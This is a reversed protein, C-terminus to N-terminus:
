KYEKLIKIYSEKKLEEILETVEKQRKKEYLINEIDKKVEKYEIFKSETKEVLQIIYWGSTTDIWDSHASLSLKLAATELAPDLEGKSYTGLYYKQENGELESYEEAIKLFDVSESLKKSIEDRKESLSEKTFYYEKNLFICNLKFKAPITYKNINEKYYAIIASTDVLIRSGLSEQIFKEQMLQELRQEKFEEYTIGQSQLANILDDRSKMNNRTMIEKIVMELYQNMDYNKERAKSILVKRGIVLDLLNSKMKDLERTLEEGSFRSQLELTMGKEFNEIESFTIIEDNVIAYIGEVTDAHLSFYFIPILLFPILTITCFRMNIEKLIRTILSFIIM